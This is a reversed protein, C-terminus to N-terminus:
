CDRAHPPASLNSADGFLRARLAQLRRLSRALEPMDALTEETVLNISCIKDLEEGSLLRVDKPDDALSDWDIEPLEKIWKKNKAWKLVKEIAQVNLDLTRGSLLREPDPVEKEPDFKKGEAEAAVVAKAIFKKRKQERRQEAFDICLQTDINGIEVLKKATCFEAWANLGSDERDHTSNKLKALSDRTKRYGEIAAGISHNAPDVVTAQKPPCEGAKIKRKLEQQAAIAEPITKTGNLPVQKASDHLWVQAYYVDGRLWLGRVRERKRNFVKVFSKGSSQTENGKM